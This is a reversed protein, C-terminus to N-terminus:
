RGEKNDKVPDRYVQTGIMNGTLVDFEHLVIVGPGAGCRASRCKVELTAEQLEGFKIGNSCRLEIPGSDM